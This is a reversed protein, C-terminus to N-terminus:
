RPQRRVLGRLLCCIDHPDFGRQRLTREIDGRAAIRLKQHMAVVSASNAASDGANEKLSYKLRYVRRFETRQVDGHRRKLLRQVVKERVLRQRVQLMISTANHSRWRASTAAVKQRILIKFEVAAGQGAGRFQSRAPFTTDRGGVIFQAFRQPPQKHLTRMRLFPLRAGQLNHQGNLLLHLAVDVAMVQILGTVFFRASSFNACTVCYFRSDRIMPAIIGGNADIAAVIETVPIAGISNSLWRSIALIPWGTSRFSHSIVGGM